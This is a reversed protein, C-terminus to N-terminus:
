ILSYIRNKFVFDFIEENIQNTLEMYSKYIIKRYEFVGKIKVYEKNDVLDLCKVLQYCKKLTEDTVEYEEYTLKIDMLKRCIEYKSCFYESKTFEDTMEKIHFEKQKNTAIHECRKLDTLLMKNQSYFKNYSLVSDSFGKFNLSIIKEMANELKHYMERFNTTSITGKNLLFAIQLPNYDETLITDWDVKLEKVITELDM